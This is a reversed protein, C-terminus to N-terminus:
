AKNKVFYIVIWVFALLFMATGIRAFNWAALTYRGKLPDFRYCFLMLHDVLTGIKGESAEVLALKVDMPSFKIDSFYKSVQGAPTIVILASSHAYEGNEERYKFGVQQMLNQIEKEGGTSFIWSGPLLGAQKRYEEGRLHALESSEKYKFSVTVISYDSGAVLKLERFLQAAGTLALGCLRPCSYYVPFLILPRGTALLEGISFKHGFEDTLVLSGDVRDGLKQSIGVAQEVDKGDLSFCLPTGFVFVLATLWPILFKDIFKM